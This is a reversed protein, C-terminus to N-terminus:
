VDGKARLQTTLFINFAATCKRVSCEPFVTRDPLLTWPDVESGSQLYVFSLNHRDEEVVTVAPGDRFVDQVSDVDAVPFVKATNKFDPVRM